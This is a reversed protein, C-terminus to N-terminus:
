NAKGVVNTPGVTAITTPTASTTTATSPNSANDIANVAAFWTIQGMPLQSNTIATCLLPQATGTCASTPVSGLAIKNTGQLYGYTFNSICGSTISASCAAFNTFDYNWTVTITFDKNPPLVPQPTPIPRKACGALVVFLTLLPLARIKM